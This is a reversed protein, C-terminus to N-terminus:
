KQQRKTKYERERQKHQQVNKGQIRASETKKAIKEQFGKDRYITRLKTKETKEHYIEEIIRLNGHRPSNEMRRAEM